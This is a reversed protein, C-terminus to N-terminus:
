PRPLSFWFRGPKTTAQPQNPDADVYGQIEYLASIRLTQLVSAVKSAIERSDDPIVSTGDQFPIVWRNLVAVLESPKADAGIRPLAANMYQRSDQLREMEEERLYGYRYSSGLASMVTNLISNRDEEALWGGVRVTNGELRVDLGPVNLFPLLHSLQGLWLPESRAQDVLIDGSIKGGGLSKQMIELVSQRSAPSNVYGLYEFQGGINRIVLKSGVGPAESPKAGAEQVPAAGQAAPAAPVTNGAAAPVAAHPTREYIDRGMIYGSVLLVIVGAAWIFRSTQSAGGALKRRKGHTRPRYSRSQPAIGPSFPSALYEEVSSPLQDPVHGGATFYRILRPIVYALATRVRANAMGLDRGLSAIKDVGLISELQKGEPVRIEDVPSMWNRLDVGHGEKELRDLFGKLGGHSPLFLFRVAEAVLVPAKRDLGLNEDADRVIDSLLRM